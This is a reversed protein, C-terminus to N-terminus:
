YWTLQKLPTRFTPTTPKSRNLRKKVAPAQDRNTKTAVLSIRDLHTPVVVALRIKEAAVAMAQKAKSVKLTQNAKEEQSEAKRALRIAAKRDARNAKKEEKNAARRDRNVLNKARNNARRDRSALSTARNNARRRTEQSAM